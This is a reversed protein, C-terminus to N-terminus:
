YQLTHNSPFVPMTFLTTGFIVHSCILPQSHDPYIHVCELQSQSRCCSIVTAVTMIYLQLQCQNNTRNQLIIFCNHQRTKCSLTESIDGTNYVLQVNYCTGYNQVSKCTAQYCPKRHMYSLISTIEVQVASIQRTMLTCKSQVGQEMLEADQTIYMLLKM